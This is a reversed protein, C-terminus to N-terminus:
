LAHFAPRKVIDHIAVLDPLLRELESPRIAQRADSRSREPHPHMEIMVGDAGAAVAARAM